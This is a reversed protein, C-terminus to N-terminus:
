KENKYLSIKELINKNNSNIQYAEEWKEVASKTKGLKILIDGYHEVIIANKNGSYRYAREIYNLAEDYLKKSYLIWSYTDLFTSNFPDIEISKMSLSAAKELEISRSVLYFAYNNMLFSNTSDNKLYLDFYEDSKKHKGINHYSEALYLIFQLELKKNDAVYSLGSELYQIAENYKKLFFYSYGVFFYIQSQNPYYELAKLSYNNLEEIRSQAIYIQFLYDWGWYNDPKRKISIKAIKETQTLDKLKYLYELYDNLIDTKFDNGNLLVQYIFLIQEQTLSKDPSQLYLEAVNEKRKEDLDITTLVSRLYDFGKSYNGVKAYLVAMGYQASLNNKDVDLINKYICFAKESQSTNLYFDALMDMYKVSDPFFVKLKLLEEQISEYKKQSYYISNRLFSVDEDVGITEEISNLVNLAEDYKLENFYIVALEFEYNLNDPFLNALKKYVSNYKQVENLEKAIKSRQLLFWENDPKYKLCFENYLKSSDLNEEKFYIESLQYASATSEKNVKLCKKLIEKAAQNNGLMKYKLGESYLYTFQITDTEVAVVNNTVTKCSLAVLIVFLIIWNFHM